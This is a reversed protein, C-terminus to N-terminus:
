GDSRPARRPLGPIRPRRGGGKPPAVVRGYIRGHEDALAAADSYCSQVYKSAHEAEYPEVGRESVKLDCLDRLFCMPDEPRNLIAEATLWEILSKFNTRALFTSADEPDSNGM